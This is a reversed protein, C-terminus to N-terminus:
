LLSYLLRQISQVDGLGASIYIGHDEHVGVAVPYDLGDIARAALGSGGEGDDLLQRNTEEREGDCSVHRDGHDLPALVPLAPHTCVYLAPLLLLWGGGGRGGGGQFDGEEGDAFQAQDHTVEIEAVSCVQVHLLVLKIGVRREEDRDDIDEHQSDEVVFTCFLRLEQVSLLGILPLTPHLKHDEDVVDRSGARKKGTYMCM